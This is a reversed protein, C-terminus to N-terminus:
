AVGRQLTGKLAVSYFGTLAVPAVYSLNVKVTSKGPIIIPEPLVIGGRKYKLSAFATLVAAADTFDGTNYQILTAMDITFGDFVEVDDVVINLRLQRIENLATAYATAMAFHVTEIAEISFTESTSLPFTKSYDSDPKNRNNFLDTNGAALWMANTDYMTYPSRSILRGKIEDFEYSYLKDYKVGTCELRLLGTDLATAANASLVIRVSVNATSNFIIPYQLRKTRNTLDVRYSETDNGITSHLNLTLIEFLPIKLFERENVKIELYSKVLAEELNATLATQAVSFYAALKDLYFVEQGSLPLLKNRLAPALVPNVFFDYITTGAAITATDYLLAPRLRVNDGPKLLGFSQLKTLYNNNM